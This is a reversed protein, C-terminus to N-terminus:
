FKGLLNFVGSFDKLHKIIISANKTPSTNLFVPLTKAFIRSQTKILPYKEINIGKWIEQIKVQANIQNVSLSNTQYLLQKTSIRDSYKNWNNTEDNQAM